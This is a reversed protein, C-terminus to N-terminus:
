SGSSLDAKIQLFTATIDYRQHRQPYYPESGSQFGPLMMPEVSTFTGSVTTGDHAHIILGSGSIVYDRLQNVLSAGSQRTWRFRIDDDLHKIEPFLTGRSGDVLTFVRAQSRIGRIFPDTDPDPLAPDSVFSNTAPDYRRIPWSM